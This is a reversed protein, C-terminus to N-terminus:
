GHIGTSPLGPPLTSRFIKWLHSRYKIHECADRLQPNSFFFKCIIVFFTVKLPNFRFYPPINNKTVKFVALQCVASKRFKEFMMLVLVVLFNLHMKELEASILQQQQVFNTQLLAGKSLLCNRFYLDLRRGVYKGMFQLKLSLCKLKMKIIIVYINM